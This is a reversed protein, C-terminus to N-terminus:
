YTTLGHHEISWIYQFITNERRTPLLMIDFGLTNELQLM